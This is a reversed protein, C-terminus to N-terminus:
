MTLLPPLPVGLTDAVARLLEAESRTVKGDTEVTAACAELLEQKLLPAANALPELSDHLTQADCNEKPLVPYMNRTLRKLGNRYATEVSATQDSGSHALFALLNAAKSEIPGLTRFSIRGRDPSGVRSKLSRELSKVLLYEFTSVKGDARVLKELTTRLSIMEAPSLRRLAPIALNLIALRDRNAWSALGTQVESLRGAAARDNSTVIEALRASDTGEAAVLAYVVSRAGIPDTLATEIFPPRSALVTSADSLNKASSHGASALLTATQMKETELYEPLDTVEGRFTPDIARIRESLPPHTAFLAMLRSGIATAFTMHCFESAHHDKLFSGGAEGGIKRLASVIGGPNRTFQVASADALFERQRSVAAQILRGFFVGIYGIVLLLFGLLGIPAGGKSRGSGRLIGYGIQSLFFIGALLGTLRLNLRTDSNLIHSFEHGIVGQLEDRNLKMMTGRTVGIAADKPTFGAAFANIAPENTLVFIEPVPLGSAIAMEEVVNRLKKEDLDRTNPEIKTGGLDEAVASGGDSLASIKVLSGVVIVALTGAATWAFFRPDFFRFDPLESSHGHHIEMFLYTIRLASYVAALILAVAIAYIVVLWRTKKRSREEREFFNM